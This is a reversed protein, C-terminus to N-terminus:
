RELREPHHDLELLLDLATEAAAGFFAPQLREFTDTPRHYDAHDEEGLYIFPIGKRHFSGHDSSSTWDEQGDAGDHGLRLTIASRSATAEAAPKLKPWRSTGCAWLENKDNRGLMDLSLDMRIKALPVPPHAVFARSGLLGIEEGDFLVILVSHQPRHSTVYGALALVTAVGSADDDAGPFVQGKRIGLHDLHASLVLYQDPTSAGEIRAILNVGQRGQMEFPHEYSDGVMALGLAKFRDIVIRRAKAHGPTGMGRGELAPDSLAKVDALLSARDLKAQAPAGGGAWLGLAACLIWLCCRSRLM